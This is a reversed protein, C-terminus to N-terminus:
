FSRFPRKIQTDCKQTLQFLRATVTLRARSRSALNTAPHEGFWRSDVTTLYLHEATASTAVVARPRNLM